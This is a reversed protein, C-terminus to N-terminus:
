KLQLLEEPKQLSRHLFSYCSQSQSLNGTADILTGFRHKTNDRPGWDPLRLASAFTLRICSEKYEANM